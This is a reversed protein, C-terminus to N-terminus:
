TATYTFIRPFQLGASICKLWGPPTELFELIFIHLRNNLHTRSPYPSIHTSWTSLARWIFTLKKITCFPRCWETINDIIVESDNQNIRLGRIGSVRANERSDSWEGLYSLKSCALKNKFYTVSQSMLRIVSKVFDKTNAQSFAVMERRLPLSMVQM